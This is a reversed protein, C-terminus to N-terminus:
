IRDPKEMTLQRLASTKEAHGKMWEVYWASKNVLELTQRRRLIFLRYAKYEMNPWVYVAAEEAPNAYLRGGEVKGEKGKKKGGDQGGDRQLMGYYAEAENGAFDFEGIVVGIRNGPLSLNVADEANAMRSPAVEYALWTIEMRAETACSAAVLCAALAAAATRIKM